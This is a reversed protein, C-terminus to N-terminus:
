LQCSQHGHYAWLGRIKCRAQAPSFPSAIPLLRAQQVLSHRFATPSPYVMALFVLPSARHVRVESDEESGGAVTAHIAQGMVQHGGQRAPAIPHIHELHAAMPGMEGLDGRAYAEDIQTGGVGVGARRCQDTVQALLPGAAEIAVLVPKVMGGDEGPGQGLPELRRVGIEGDAGPGGQGDVARLSAPPMGELGAERGALEIGQSVIDNNGGATHRLVHGGISAQIAVQDLHDGTRHHGSLDEGTVERHRVM